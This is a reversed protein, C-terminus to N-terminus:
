LTYKLTVNLHPEIAEDLQFFSCLNETITRYSHEVQERTIYNYIMKYSISQTMLWEVSIISSHTKKNWAYKFKDMERNKEKRMPNLIDM